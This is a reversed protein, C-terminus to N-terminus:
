QPILPLPPLSVKYHSFMVADCGWAKMDMVVHPCAAVCDIVTMGRGGTKRKVLDVVAKVDTGHGLLNSKATFAVLRTHGTILPELETPDLHLSFPNNPDQATPLWYKLTLGLTKALRVWPGVNAIYLPLILPNSICARFPRINDSLGCDSVKMILVRLSSRM